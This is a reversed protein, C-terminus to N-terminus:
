LEDHLGNYSEKVQMPPSEGQVPGRLTGIRLVACM